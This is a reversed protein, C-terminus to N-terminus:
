GPRPVRAGYDLTSILSDIYLAKNLIQFLTIIRQPSKSLGEQGGNGHPTGLVINLEIVSARLGLEQHELLFCTSAYIYNEPAPM